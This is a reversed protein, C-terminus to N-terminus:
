PRKPFRVLSKEPDDTGPKEMKLDEYISEADTDSEEEFDYEGKSISESFSQWV